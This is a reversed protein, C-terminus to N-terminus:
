GGGRRGTRDIRGDQRWESQCCVCLGDPRELVYRSCNQYPRRGRLEADRQMTFSIIKEPASDYCIIGFYLADVTVAVRVETKESAEADEDPEVMRLPGISLTRQWITEDLVGDLQIGEGAELKLAIAEPIGINEESLLSTPLGICILMILLLAASLYKM